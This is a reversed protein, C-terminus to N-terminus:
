VRAPQKGSSLFRSEFFTYSLWALVWTLGFAAITWLIRTIVSSGAERLGPDIIQFILLKIPFHFMYIGYSYQGILKMFSTNLFGTTSRGIVLLGLICAWFIANLTIGFYQVPLERHSWISKETQFHVILIGIVCLCLAGWLPNRGRLLQGNSYLVYVIGGIAFSDIRSISLVYAASAPYPFVDVLYIRTIVALFVLGTLILLFLRVRTGVFLVVFPWVLYFQMETSISWLHWFMMHPLFDYLAMRINLTFTVFYGIANVQSLFSDTRFSPLLPPLIYLALILVVFYLPVIRLIRRMYFRSFYHEGGLSDVLKGTLLFGSLVFFLDVGTWGFPVIEPAFHYLFVLLVALGRLGDLVPVHYNVVPRDLPSAPNITHTPAKINVFGSQLFLM